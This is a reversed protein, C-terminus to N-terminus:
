LVAIAFAPGVFPLQRRFRLAVLGAAAVGLGIHLWLVGRHDLTNGRAVLYVAALGAALFAGGERPYRKVAWLAAAMLLLGVALHAVVNGMYFLSPAPYAAIYGSNILLFIFLAAAIRTKMNSEASCVMSHAARPPPLLPFISATSRM